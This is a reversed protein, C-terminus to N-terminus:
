LSTQSTMFITARTKSTIPLCSRFNHCDPATPLDLISNILSQYYNTEGYYWNVLRNLYITLIDRFLPYFNDLWILDDIESGDDTVWSLKQYNYDVIVNFRCDPLGCFESLRDVSLSVFDSYSPQRFCFFVRIEQSLTSKLSRSNSEDCISDCSPFKVKEQITRSSKMMQDFVPKVPAVCNYGFFRQEQFYFSFDCVFKLMNM